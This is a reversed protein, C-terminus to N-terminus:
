QTRTTGFHRHMEALADAPVVQNALWEPFPTFQLVFAMIGLLGFGLNVKLNTWEGRHVKWFSFPVLPFFPAILLWIGVMRSIQSADLNKM